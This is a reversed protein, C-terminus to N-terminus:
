RDNNRRGFIMLLRLLSLIATFASALYTMAAARLVRKAGSLEEQSLMGSEAIAALARSSANFEVPLTVLELLVALSYLLIGATVVFDFQVPLLMGLVIMPMALQSGVRAVPIIASRLKMPSYGVAHQVAHGAEHAAVGVAAVSSVDYVTDSLRIVSSRPDFHDTLSGRVHELCVNTIGNNRLVTAAANAGTLGRANRVKSYKSFTSKVSAQAWMTLLLAPLMFIFYSWNYYYFGM